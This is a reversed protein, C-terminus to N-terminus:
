RWEGEFLPELPHERRSMKLQQFIDAKEATKHETEIDIDYAREPDM